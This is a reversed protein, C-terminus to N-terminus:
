RALPTAQDCGMIRSKWLEPLEPGPAQKTDELKTGSPSSLETGCDSSITSLEFTTRSSTNPPALPMPSKKTRLDKPSSNSSATSASTLRERETVSSELCLQRRYLFTALKVRKIGTTIGFRTFLRNFRAKVTRRAMNLQQAIEANDCGQLLLEAIQQDRKGLRIGDFNM